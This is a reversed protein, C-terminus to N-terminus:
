REWEARQPSAKRERVQKHSPISGQVMEDMMRMLVLYPTDEAFNVDESCHRLKGIGEM